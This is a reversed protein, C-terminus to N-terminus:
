IDILTILSDPQQLNKRGECFKVEFVCFYGTIQAGEIQAIAKEAAGLTGGTAVLDDVLMIRSNSNLAGKQLELVDESYETTYSVKITEGPLKNKKRLPVFSLKMRDAIAMGILFGRSEFGIITNIEKNNTKLFTTIARVSNCYLSNTLCPDSLLSFIDCFAVGKKPFDPFYKVKEKLVLVEKDNVAETHNDQM